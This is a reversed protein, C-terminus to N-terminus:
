LVPKCQKQSLAGGSGAFIISGQTFSGIIGANIQAQVKGFATLISDTAVIVANTGVTYGTLLKSTVTASSIATTLSGASTTVDGNTRSITCSSTYWESTNNFKSISVM